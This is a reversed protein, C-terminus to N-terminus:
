GSAAIVWLSVQVPGSGEWLTCSSAVTMNAATSLLVVLQLSCGLAIDADCAYGM